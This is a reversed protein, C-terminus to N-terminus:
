SQLESTHEESRMLPRARRSDTPRRWTSARTAGRRLPAPGNNRRLLYTPGFSRGALPVLFTYDCELTELRQSRTQKESHITLPSHFYAVQLCPVSESFGFWSVRRSARMETRAHTRFAPM